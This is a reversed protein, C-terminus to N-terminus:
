RKRTRLFDRYDNEDGLRIGDNSLIWVEFKINRNARGNSLEASGYTRLRGSADKVKIERIQFGQRNQLFATDPALRIENAGSGDDFIVTVEIGAGSKNLIVPPYRQQCGVILLCLVIWPCSKM